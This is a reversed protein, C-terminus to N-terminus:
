LSMFTQKLRDIDVMTIKGYQTQIVRAKRLDSLVRSVTQRTTSVAAALESTTIARSEGNKPIARVIFSLVRQYPTLSALDCYKTLIRNFIGSLGQYYDKALAPDKDLLSQFARGPFSLVTMDSVATATAPIISQPTAFFTGFWDGQRYLLTSVDKAITPGHIIELMKGELILSETELQSRYAYVSQGATYQRLFPAYAAMLREKEKEDM